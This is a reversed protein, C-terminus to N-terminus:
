RYSAVYFGAAPPGHPNSPPPTSLKQPKEYDQSRDGFAALAPPPSRELRTLPRSPPSVRPAPPPSRAPREIDRSGDGASSLSDPVSPNMARHGMMGLFVDDDDPGHKNYNTIPRSPPSVKQSLPPPSASRQFDSPTSMSPLQIYSSARPASFSGSPNIRLMPLPGSPISPPPPPPSSPRSWYPNIILMQNDEGILSLESLPRITEAVDFMSAILGLFAAMLFVSSLSRRM